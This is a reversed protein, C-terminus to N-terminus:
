RMESFRAVVEDLTYLCEDNFKDAAVAGDMIVKQKQAGLKDIYRQVGKCGTIYNEYVRDLYDLGGVVLATLLFNYHLDESNWSYGRNETLHWLRCDPPMRVHHGYRQVLLDLYPEGGGYIGLKEHWGGIQWFLDADILSSSTGSLPVDFTPPKPLKHTWNGWFKEPRWEYGWCTKECPELWYQLGCHAVGKWGDHFAVLRKFSGPSPIVHSDLFLYYDGTAVKAGANRAQWCSAKENYEIVQGCRGKQFPWYKAVKGFDDPHCKNLVPILEFDLGELDAAAAQLTWLLNQLENRSPIIVSVMVQAELDGM